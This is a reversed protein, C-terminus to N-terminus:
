LYFMTITIDTRGFVVKIIERVRDLDLGDLGCGIRPIALEKIGMFVMQDRLLELSKTFDQYTPKGSSLEKTVLNFVKDILICDPYVGEGIQKLKERMDYRRVFEVAIGAGLHFDSAVCHAKHMTDPVSFLDGQQELLIM